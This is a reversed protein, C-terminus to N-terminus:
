EAPKEKQAAKRRRGLWIALIGMPVAVSLSLGVGVMDAMSPNRVLSFRTPEEPDVWCTATTGVPFARMEGVPRSTQGANWGATVTQKGEVDMAVAALPHGLLTPRSSGGTSHRGSSRTPEIYTTVVRLDLIECPKPEFRVYPELMSVLLNGLVAICILAIIGSAVRAIRTIQNTTKEGKRRRVLILWGVAIVAVPIFAVLFKEVLSPEVYNEDRAREQYLNVVQKERGPLETITADFTFGGARVTSVVDDPWAFVEVGLQGRAGAPLSLWPWRVTGTLGPRGATVLEGDHSASVFLIGNDLQARIEVVRDAPTLNDVTILVKGTKGPHLPGDEIAVGTADARGDPGPEPLLWDDRGRPRVDGTVLLPRDGAYRELLARGPGQILDAVTRGADNAAHVDAGAELLLEIMEPSGRRQAMLVTFGNQTRANPDAGAELLIRAVEVDPTRMLLTRGGPEAADPDLGADMLAAVMASSRSFHLVPNGSRDLAAPDGLGRSALTHALDVDDAEIAAELAAIRRELQSWGTGWQALIEGPAAPYLTAASLALLVLGVFSLVAYQIGDFFHRAGGVALYIGAYLLLAGLPALIAAVVTSAFDRLLFYFVGAIILQLLCGGRNCGKKEGRPASEQTEM